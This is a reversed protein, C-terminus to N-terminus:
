PRRRRKLLALHALSFHAYGHDFLLFPDNHEIRLNAFHFSIIDQHGVLNTSPFVLNTSQFLIIDEHGVLNTSPFVLNTSQFLIIDQLGAFNTSQFLIIDEHGVLNTSPFVLNTFPFLALLFIIRLFCCVFYHTTQLIKVAVQPQLIIGLDAILFIQSHSELIHSVTAIIQRV